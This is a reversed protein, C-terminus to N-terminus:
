PIFSSRHFALRKCLDIHLLFPQSYESHRFFDMRLHLYGQRVKAFSLFVLRDFSVIFRWTAIPVCRCSIASYCYTRRVQDTMLAAGVTSIAHAFRVEGASGHCAVCRTRLYWLYGPYLCVKRRAQGTQRASCRGYSKRPSQKILFTTSTLFIPVDLSQKCIAVVLVLYACFSLYM